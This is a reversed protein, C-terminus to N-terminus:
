RLDDCVMDSCYMHLCAEMLYEIVNRAQLHCPLTLIRQVLIAWVVGQRTMVLFDLYCLSGPMVSFGLPWRGCRLM